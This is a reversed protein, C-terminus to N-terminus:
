STLRFELLEGKRRTHLVSISAINAMHAAQSFTVHIEPRVFIMSNSMEACGGKLKLGATDNNTGISHGYKMRTCPLIQLGTHTADQQQINHM